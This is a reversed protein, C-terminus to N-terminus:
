KAYGWEMVAVCLTVCGPRHAFEFTALRSQSHTAPALLLKVLVQRRGFHPLLASFVVQMQCCLGEEGEGRVCKGEGYVEEGGGVSGEGAGEERVCKKGRRGGRESVEKGM